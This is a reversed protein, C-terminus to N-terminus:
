TSAPSYMLLVICGDQSGATHEAGAARVIFAGPEYTANQDYFSGEIVFIQEIDTHSHSESFAGPEVKMLWTRLEKQSDELLPKVWFGTVGGDQWQIETANLMMSGSAPLHDLMATSERTFLESM